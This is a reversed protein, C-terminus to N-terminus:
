PTAPVCFLPLSHYHSQQRADDTLQAWQRCYLMAQPSALLSAEACDVRWQKV